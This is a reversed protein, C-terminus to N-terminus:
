KSRSRRASERKRFVEAVHKEASALMSAALGKGPFISEFAETLRAHDEASLIVQVYVGGEAKLAARAKQKAIRYQERRDVGSSPRGRKVPAPILEAQIAKAPKSKM